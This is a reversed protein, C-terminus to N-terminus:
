GLALILVVALLILLGVVIVGVVVNANGSSNKTGAHHQGRM